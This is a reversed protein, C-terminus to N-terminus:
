RDVGQALIEIACGFAAIRLIFPMKAKPFMLIAMLYCVVQYIPQAITLKVSAMMYLTSLFLGLLGWLISCIYLFTDEIKQQIM